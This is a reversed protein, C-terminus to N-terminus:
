QIDENFEGLALFTLTVLIEMVKKMVSEPQLEPRPEALHPSAILNM